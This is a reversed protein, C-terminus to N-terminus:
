VSRGAQVAEGLVTDDVPYLEGPRFREAHAGDTARLVLTDPGPGRLTGVVASGADVLSRASAALRGFVADVDIGDVIARSLEGVARLRRAFVNRGWTDPGARAQPPRTPPG